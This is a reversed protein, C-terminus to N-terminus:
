RYCFQWTGVRFFEVSHNQVENHKTACKKPHIPLSLRAVGDLKSPWTEWAVRRVFCVIAMRRWRKFVCAADKLSTAIRITGPTGSSIQRLGHVDHPVVSIYAQTGASGAKSQGTQHRLVVGLLRGAEARARDDVWEEIWIGLLRNM